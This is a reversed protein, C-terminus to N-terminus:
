SEAISHLRLTTRFFPSTRHGTDPRRFLASDSLLGGNCALLARDDLLHVHGPTYERVQPFTATPRSGFQSAVAAIRDIARIHGGLANWGPPGPGTASAVLHELTSEANIGAAKAQTIAEAHEDFAPRMSDLIADAAHDKELTRYWRSVLMREARSALEARVRQENDAAAAAPLLKALKAATLTGDAAADLIANAPDQNVVPSTLVDYGRLLAALSEPLQGGASTVSQAFRACDFLLATPPM